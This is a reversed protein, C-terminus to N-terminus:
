AIAWDLIILMITGSVSREFLARSSGVCDIWRRQNEGRDATSITSYEDNRQFSDRSFHEEHVQDFSDMM